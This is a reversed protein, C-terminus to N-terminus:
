PCSVRLPDTSTITPTSGDQCEVQSTGAGLTTVPVLDIAQVKTAEVNGLADTSAYRVEVDGLVVFPETYPISPDSGDISYLTSAVGSESDTPTLTVMVPDTFADACSGGNCSIATDPPTLDFDVVQAQETEVNGAVDESLFRIDADASVQFPVTYVLSPATGDISYLTEAVGSDDDAATLTVTVPDKKFGACDGDCSITTVPPTSDPPPPEGFTGGECVHGSEDVVCVVVNSAPQQFTVLIAASPETPGNEPDCGLNQHGDPSSPGDEDWWGIAAPGGNADRGPTWYWQDCPDGESYDIRTVEDDAQVFGDGDADQYAALDSVQEAQFFDGHPYHDGHVVEDYQLTAGPGQGDGCFTAGDPHNEQGFRDNIELDGPVYGDGLLLEYHVEHNLESILGPGNPDPVNDYYDGSGDLDTWENNDLYDGDGNLDQVEVPDLNNGDGNLDSFSEIFACSYAARDGFSWGNGNSKGDFDDRFYEDSNPDSNPLERLFVEFDNNDTPGVLALSGVLALAGITALVKRM